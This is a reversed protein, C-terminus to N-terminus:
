VARSEVDIVEKTPIKIVKRLDEFGKTALNTGTVTAIGAQEKLAAITGPTAERAQDAVDFLLRTLLKVGEVLLTIIAVVIMVVLKLLALIM